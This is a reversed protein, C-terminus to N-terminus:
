AAAPLSAPHLMSSMQSRRRIGCPAPRPRAAPASGPRRPTRRPRFDKRRRSARSDRCAWAPRCVGSPVTRSSRSVSPSPRNSWLWTKASPKSQAAPMAGQFPPTNTVAGGSIQYKFSVSPSPVLRRAGSPRCRTRCGSGAPSPSCGSRPARGCSRRRPPPCRRSSGGAAVIGLARTDRDLVVVEAEVRHGACELRDAPVSWNPLVNSSQPLRNMQSSDCGSECGTKGSSLQRPVRIQRHGRRHLVDSPARHRDEPDARDLAPPLDARAAPDGVARSGGFRGPGAMVDDVGAGAHRDVAATGVRSLEIAIREDAIGLVVQDM